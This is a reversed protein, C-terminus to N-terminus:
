QMQGASAMQPIYACAPLTEHPYRKKMAAAVLGLFM